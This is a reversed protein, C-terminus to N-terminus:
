ESMWAQFSPTAMCDALYKDWLEMSELGLARYREAKRYVAKEMNARSEPSTKSMVERYSKTKRLDGKPGAQIVAAGAAAAMNRCLEQHADQAVSTNAMLLAALAALFKNM